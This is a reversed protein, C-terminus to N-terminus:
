VCVFGSRTGSEDTAYGHKSKHAIHLDLSDQATAPFGGFTVQIVAGGQKIILAPVNGITVLILNPSSSIRHSVILRPVLHWSTFLM